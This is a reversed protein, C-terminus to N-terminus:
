VKELPLIKAIAEKVLVSLYGPATQALLTRLPALARPDGLLGLAESASARLSIDPSALLKLLSEIAREDRNKALLGIAKTRVPVYETTQEILTLLTDLLQPESAYGSMELVKLAAVHIQLTANPDTLMGLLPKFLLAKCEATNLVRLADERIYVYSDDFACLFPELIEPRTLKAPFQMVLSSLAKMVTARLQLNDESSFSAALASLARLDNLEDLAWAAHMCVLKDPDRLLKLLPEIARLGKLKGLAEAVRLRVQADPDSGIESLPEVACRDGHTGLARVASVRVSSEEDHLAQLMSNFSRPDPLSWLATFAAERISKDADATLALLDPIVESHSQGIQGLLRIALVRVPRARDALAALLHPIEQAGNLRVLTELAAVRVLEAQNTLAGQLSLVAQPGQVNNLAALARLRVPEAQDTLATLLYPTAQAGHLRILAELAAVRVSMTRDSLGVILHPTAQAGSLKELAQVALVRVQSIRDNLMCALYPLARQDGLKGLAKVVAKRVSADSDNLLRTLSEFAQGRKSRRRMIKAIAARRISMTPDSLEAILEAINSGPTAMNSLQEKEYIHEEIREYALM